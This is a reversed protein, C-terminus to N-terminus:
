ETSIREPPKEEVVEVTPCLRIKWREKWGNIDAKALKWWARTTTSLYMTTALLLMTLMSASIIKNDLVWNTTAIALRIIGVRIIGRNQLIDNGLEICIYPITVMLLIVWPYLLLPGIKWVKNPIFIWYAPDKGYPVKKLNEEKLPEQFEKWLGKKPRRGIMFQWISIVTYCAALIVAVIAMLILIATWICTGLAIRGAYHYVNRPSPVAEHFARYSTGYVHYHLSKNSVRLHM